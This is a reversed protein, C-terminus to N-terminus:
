RLTSYLKGRERKTEEVDFHWWIGFYNPRVPKDPQTLNIVPANAKFPKLGHYNIFPPSLCLSFDPCHLDKSLEKHINWVNSYDSTLMILKIYLANILLWTEAEHFLCWVQFNSNAQAFDLIFFSFPPFNFLPKNEEKETEASSWKCNIIYSEIMVVIYIYFIHIKNSDTRSTDEFTGVLCIGHPRMARETHKSRKEKTVFLRQANEGRGGTGGRPVLLLKTFVTM